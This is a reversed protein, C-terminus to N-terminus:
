PENESRSQQETPLQATSVDQGPHAIGSTGDTFQIEIATALKLTGGIVSHGRGELGDLWTISAVTKTTTELDVVDGVKLDRVKM